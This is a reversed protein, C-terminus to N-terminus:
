DEVWTWLEGAIPEPEFHGPKYKPEPKPMRSKYYTCSVRRCSEETENGCINRYPCIHSTMKDLRGSRM